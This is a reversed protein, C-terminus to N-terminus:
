TVVFAHRRFACGSECLFVALPLSGEAALRPLADFLPGLEIVLLRSLVGVAYFAAQNRSYAKLDFVVHVAVLRVHLGVCRGFDHADLFRVFGRWAFGHWTLVDRVEECGPLGQRTRTITWTAVRGRM